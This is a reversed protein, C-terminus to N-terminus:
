YSMQFERIGGILFPIMFWTRTRVLQYFHLLTSLGFLVVFIAAAAASPTYYYFTFNM